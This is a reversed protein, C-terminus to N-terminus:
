RLWEPQPMQVLSRGPPATRTPPSCQASLGSAPGPPVASDTRCGASRHPDRAPPCKPDTHSPQMGRCKGACVLSPCTELLFFVFTFFRSIFNTFGWHPAQRNGPPLCSALPQPGPALDQAPPSLPLTGRGTTPPQGTYQSSNLVDKAEVWWTVPHGWNHCGFIGRVNGSTGQDLLM